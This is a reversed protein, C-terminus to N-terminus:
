KVLAIAEVIIYQEVRNADVEDQEGRPIVEVGIGDHQISSVNQMSDEVYNNYHPYANHDEVYNRRTM